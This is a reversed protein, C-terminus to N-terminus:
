KALSKKNQRTVGRDHTRTLWWALNECKYAACMCDTTLFSFSCLIVIKWNWNAAFCCNGLIKWFWYFVEYINIDIESFSSLKWIITKITNIIFCMSILLKRIFLTVLCLSCRLRSVQLTPFSAACLISHFTHGFVVSSLLTLISYQTKRSLPFLAFVFM